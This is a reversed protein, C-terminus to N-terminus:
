NAIERCKGVVMVHMHAGSERNILVSNYRFVRQGFIVFQDLPFGPTTCSISGDVRECDPMETSDDEFTRVGNRDVLWKHREWPEEAGSMQIEDGNQTVYTFEEGVCFWSGIDDEASTPGGLLLGLTILYVRKM